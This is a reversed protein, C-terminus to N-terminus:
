WGNSWRGSSNKKTKDREKKEYKQEKTVIDKM